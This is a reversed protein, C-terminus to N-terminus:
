SLNIINGDGDIDIIESNPKVPFGPMIMIDGTLVVIFGAGTQVIIDKVNLDFDRPRNLLKPNDSFSFQTKAICVPLSSYGLKDIQELVKEAKESYLVSKAGYIYKAIKYIKMRTNDEDSYTLNLGAPSECLRVIKEALDASGKGGEEFAASISFPM